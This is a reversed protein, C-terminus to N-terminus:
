RVSLNKYAKKLMYLLKQAEDAFEQQTDTGEARAPHESSALRLLIPNRGGKATASQQRRGWGDSALNKTDSHQQMQTTVTRRAGDGLEGETPIQRMM